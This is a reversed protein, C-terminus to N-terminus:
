VHAYLALRNWRVFHVQLGGGLQGHEVNGINGSIM